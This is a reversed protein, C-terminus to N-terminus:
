KVKGEEIMAVVKLEWGQDSGPTLGHKYAAAAMDITKLQVKMSSDFPDRGYVERLQKALWDHMEKVIAKDESTNIERGLKERIKDWLKAYNSYVIKVNDELQAESDIQTNVKATGKYVVNGYYDKESWSKWEVVYPM